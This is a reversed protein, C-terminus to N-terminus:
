LDMKIGNDKLWKKRDKYDPMVSEVLKWFLISHNPQILHSMEHVIVYDLVPPPAMIVRWNFYINGRSTCSGWRRKQEKIKIKEPKVKFLPKYFKIRKLIVKVAEKKYWKQIAAKLTLYNKSPSVVSIEDESLEIKPKPTDSNLIIHLSYNKGLYLFKEGDKFERNLPIYGLNKLSTLKKIIWKGKSKVKEKIYDESLGIPSIVSIKELPEIQIALTKRNRYKVEFEITIDGCRTELKM